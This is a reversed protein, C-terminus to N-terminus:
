GVFLGGYIAELARAYAPTDFLPATRRAQALRERVRALRVRDRAFEVARAEYAAPDDVLLDDALELAHALPVGRLHM